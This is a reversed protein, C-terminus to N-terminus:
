NEQNHSNVLEDIKQQYLQYNKMKIDEYGRIMDPLEAVVAATDIRGDDLLERLTEMYSEPLRRELKRVKTYGFIDLPTGRLFKLKHLVWFGGRFWPGFSSKNGKGLAKFIPPHLRYVVKADRGFEREISKTFEDSLYLRAVEYEDKYAMLKHLYQAVQPLIQEPMEELFTVYRTALKLNQYDILDYIRRSIMSRYREPFRLAMDHIPQSMIQDTTIDEKSRLTALQEPSSVTLRGITFALKNEQIAVGNIEIAKFIAEKSIPIGGSQFAVGVLIMNSQLHSGFFEESIQVADVSFRSKVNGELRSLLFSEEPFGVEKSRVMKGTPVRSTSVVCITRDPHAMALNTDTVGALEDFLIMTTAEARSVRNSFTPTESSLKIHSIVSGGKQSLGTQDLNSSYKGDLFAATAIIQNVTVVGTGGIGVMFIRADQVQIEPSPITSEDIDLSTRKEKRKGGTVEIFAPCDGKLCTYDRNCSSQHIMTKRGFETEVPHVSLCNSKVGCDGCGECVRQNIFIQKQPTSALGRKRKRRLDATCPQEYILVTVGKIERLERQVEDLKDRHLQGRKPNNSVVVVKSVGEAKLAKVLNEISMVGDAHQGGTMAVVSNYLIKYTINTGAAIAQRIALYGSHALTGDGMNQFMHSMKSFHEAGVWPVGEAGMHLLGISNREMLLTLGHCGIGAGALSGEPVVTSTNHPCGSCFYPTRPPVMQLGLSNLNKQTRARYVKFKESYQPLVRELINIVDHVLIESFAAVLPKGQVDRKGIVLPRHEQIYLLEKLQTEIFGRKEEIVIIQKLDKSFRKIIEEELPYIMGLKLMRINEIGVLDLAEVVDYYTKGASVIGVEEGSHTIRDINNASAFLKVAKFRADHMERELVLSNQPLLTPNQIHKWPKGNYDFNPQEISIPSVEVTGFSDAVDTVVKLGVWLGSYRSMEIGLRGFKLLESINGPYLVPIFADYFTVESHSPVTSSKAYPDDGVLALVGGKPNTGVLNAHKLADGSRDLGPAKGYWIGVVGDHTPDPLLNAIQSGYVATAGLDENVAPIFKIDHEELLKENRLLTSDYGGLPSGRYGSILTATKLGTRRDARMQDLPLRVLAQIGSMIVTGEEKTYKDILSFEQLKQQVQDSM